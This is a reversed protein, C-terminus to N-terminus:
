KVQISQLYRTLNSIRLQKDQVNARNMSGLIPGWIPMTATGHAPVEAGFQLIAAVHADPFKGQNNKQIVTLDTPQSKLSAAVPGHGKGDTGHCPACYSTYMQKADTSATRDVPIVVKSPAQDAFSLSAALLTAAATVSLAKLM